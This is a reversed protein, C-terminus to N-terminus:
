LRRGAAQFAVLIERDLSLLLMSARSKPRRGSPRVGVYGSHSQNNQYSKPVDQGPRDSCSFPDFRIPEAFFEPRSAPCRVAPHRSRM